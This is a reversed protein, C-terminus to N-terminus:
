WLEIVREDMLDEENFRIAGNEGLRIQLQGARTEDLVDGQYELDDFHVGHVM